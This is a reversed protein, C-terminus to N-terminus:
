TETRRRLAPAGDLGALRTPHPRPDHWSWNRVQAPAAVPRQTAKRTEQTELIRFRQPAYGGCRIPSSHGVESVNVAYGALAGVRGDRETEFGALVYVRGEVLPSLDHNGDCRCISFCRRTDVCAFRTGIPTDRSIM